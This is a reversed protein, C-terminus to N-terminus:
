GEIAKGQAVTARPIDLIRRPGPAGQVVDGITSATLVALISEEARAFAEHVDCPEAPIGCPVGRLVCTRRRTDGEAAEIVELLSIASAPRSLRYGGTRGIRAEVIGARVLDAMVQPLFGRPISMASAIRTVSVPEAGGSDALAMVARIAYSGRRTLELRMRRLTPVVRGARFPGFPVNGLLGSFRVLSSHTEQRQNPHAGCVWGATNSTTAHM